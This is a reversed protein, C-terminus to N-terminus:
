HVSRHGYWIVNHWVAGKIVMLIHELASTYSQYGNSHHELASKYSQYIVM